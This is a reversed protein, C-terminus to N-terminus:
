KQVDESPTNFRFETEGTAPDVIVYSAVGLEIAQERIGAASDVSTGVCFGFALGILLGFVLCIAEAKDSDM